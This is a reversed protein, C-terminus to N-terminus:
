GILIKALQRWEELPLHPSPDASLAQVAVHDAGATLHANVGARVADADGWVVATDIFRDSGEGTLDEDTLGYRRLM